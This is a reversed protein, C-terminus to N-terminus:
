CGPLFFFNGEAITEKGFIVGEALLVPFLFSLFFSLSQTFLAGHSIATTQGTQFLKLYGHGKLSGCTLHWCFRM